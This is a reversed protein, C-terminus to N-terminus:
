TISFLSVDCQSSACFITCFVPIEDLKMPLVVCVIVNLVFTGSSIVGSFVIFLKM